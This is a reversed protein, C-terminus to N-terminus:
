PRAAKMWREAGHIAVLLDRILGGVIEVDSISGHKCAASLEDGYIALIDYAMTLSMHAPGACVDGASATFRTM